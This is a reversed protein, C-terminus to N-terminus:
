PSKAGFDIEIGVKNDVTEVRYVKYNGDGKGSPCCIVESTSGVKIISIDSDLELLEMGLGEREYLPVQRFFTQRDFICVSGADIDISFIEVKSSVKCAEPILRVGQITLSKDNLTATSRVYVDFQGPSVKLSPSTDSIPTRGLDCPTLWKGKISMPGLKLWDGQSKEVLEGLSLSKIDKIFSKDEPLTLGLSKLLAKDRGFYVAIPSSLWHDVSSDKHKKGRELDWSYITNSLVSPNRKDPIWFRLCGWKSKYRINKTPCFMVVADKPFDPDMEKVIKSYEVFDLMSVTPDIFECKKSTLAKLVKENCLLEKYREPLKIGLHKEAEDIQNAYVPFCSSIM